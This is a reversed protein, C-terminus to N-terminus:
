AEQEHQKRQEIENLIDQRHEELFLFVEHVNTAKTQNMTGFIGKEALLHANKLLGQGPYQEPEADTDGGGFVAYKDMFRQMNGAFFLLVAMKHGPELSAVSKAREKATFENYDERHDGNWDPATTYHGPRRPRCLTAVLLNLHEDGPVLQRIFVLFHIYADTLEGFSLTLLDAEPLLYAQNDVALSPFPQKHIPETYMWRLAHKLEHVVIANAQRAKKGVQPGFHKHMLKAWAKARMNLSLRIIQHITDPTTPTFYILQLLQPLRQTNVESWSQPLQYPQGDLEISLM